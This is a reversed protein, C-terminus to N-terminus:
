TTDFHGGTEVLVSASQCSNAVQLGGASCGFLFARRKAQNRRRAPPPFLGRGAQGPPLSTRNGPRRGGPGPWNTAKAAGTFSRAPETKGGLILPTGRFIFSSVTVGGENIIVGIVDGSTEVGFAKPAPVGSLAIELKWIADGTLLGAAKSVTV